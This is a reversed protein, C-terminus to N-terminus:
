GIAAVRFYALGRFYLSPLRMQILSCSSGFPTLAFDIYTSLLARHSHRYIVIVAVPEASHQTLTSNM